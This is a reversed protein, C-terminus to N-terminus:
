NIRFWDSPIIGNESSTLYISYSFCVGSIVTLREITGIWKSVIVSYRSIREVNILMFLKEKPHKTTGYNIHTDKNSLYCIFCCLKLVFDMRVLLWSILRTIAKLAKTSNYNWQTIYFIAALFKFLKISNNEGRSMSLNNEVIMEMEYVDSYNMSM